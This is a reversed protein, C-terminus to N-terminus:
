VEMAMQKIVYINSKRSRSQNLVYFKANKYLTVHMKIYFLFVVVFTKLGM